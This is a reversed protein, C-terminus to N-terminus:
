AIGRAQSLARLDSVTVVRLLLLVAFYAVGGIALALPWANPLAIRMSAALAGGAGAVKLTTWGFQALNRRPLSFTAYCTAAVVGAALTGAAAGAAGYAVALPPTAVANIALSIAAVQLSRRQAGQAFLTYSM